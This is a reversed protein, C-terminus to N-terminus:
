GVQCPVQHGLAPQAHGALRQMCSGGGPLTSSEPASANMGGPLTSAPGSCTSRPWGAEAHMIRWRAPYQTGTCKREDWRAPYKTAWHLNLTALLRKHGPGMLTPAAEKSAGQSTRFLEAAQQVHALETM